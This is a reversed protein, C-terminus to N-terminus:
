ATYGGDIVLEAGTIFSSADSAFFLIADTIEEPAALRGLPTGSALARWAADESGLLEVQERFFPMTNWMPTRVGGPLVSNVRIRDPACELAASRALLRLAAKSSCYAAAGALAKIGSASSVIVITGSSSKRLAPIAHKIGLFVGDLNVEMVSRWEQLTMEALPGAFSIGACAVLSDLRGCTASIKELAAVWDSEQSVDLRLAQASNRQQGISAVVEEAAPLNRDSALVHAGEAALRLAAARGIGSGAGTVLAFKGRMSSSGSSSRDAM